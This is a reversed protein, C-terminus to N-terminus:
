KGFGFLGTTTLTTILEVDPFGSNYISRYELILFINFQGSQLLDKV